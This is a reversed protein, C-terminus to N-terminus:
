NAASILGAGATGQGICDGVNANQTIGFATQVAIQTNMNMLYWMRVAKKNVQLTELTQLCDFIDEKDFFSILDMALFILGKGVDELRALVTKLTLLHEHISHGPLGGVQYISLKSTLPEKMQNVVLADVCRALVEKMHLFRNNKLIDMPGKRKWIMILLTKRFMIPVEENDIIRKCLMFIAQKYNMGAKILFDYTKTYKSEFKNM